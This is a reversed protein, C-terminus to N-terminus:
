GPKLQGLNRNVGDGHHTMNVTRGLVYVVNNAVGYWSPGTM